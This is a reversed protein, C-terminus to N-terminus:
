QCKLEPFLYILWIAIILGIIEVVVISFVKM